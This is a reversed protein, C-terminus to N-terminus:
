ERVWELYRRGQKAPMARSVEEFHKLMEAECQARTRARETLLSQIESTVAPNQALLERLRRNQDEIVQCREACRPLYAEHLATIRAFEAESVGFESKLWALEPQPEHMMHRCSATGLYYFGCFAATGMLLGLSLIFGGKKM